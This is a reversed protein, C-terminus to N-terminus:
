AGSTPPAPPSTDGHARRHWDDLEAGYYRPPGYWARRRSSVLLVIGVVILPFVLFGPFFGAGRHWDDVVIARTVSGGDGSIVEGAVEIDRANREGARYAGVAVALLAAAMLVGVGIGILLKRNM